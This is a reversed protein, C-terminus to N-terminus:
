ILYGQNLMTADTYVISSVKLHTLIHTAYEPCLFYDTEIKDINTIGDPLNTGEIAKKMHSLDWPVPLFLDCLSHEHHQLGPRNQISKPKTLDAYYSVKCPIPVM